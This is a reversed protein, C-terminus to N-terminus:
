NYGNKLYGISIPVSQLAPIRERRQGVNYSLSIDAFSQRGVSATAGKWVAKQVSWIMEIIDM